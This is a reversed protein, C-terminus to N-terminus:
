LCFYAAAPRIGVLWKRRSSPGDSLSIKVLLTIPLVKTQKQKNSPTKLNIDTLNSM